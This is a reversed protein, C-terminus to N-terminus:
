MNGLVLMSSQPLWFVFFLAWGMWWTGLGVGVTEVYRMAGNPSGWTKKLGLEEKQVETPTVTPEKFIAKIRCGADVADLLVQDESADRAVCSLDYFEWASTDFHPEIWQELILKMTYRTMEEGSIYVMPPLKMKDADATSAAASMWRQAQQQQQRQRLRLQLPLASVRRSVALGLGSGSISGSGLGSSSRLM